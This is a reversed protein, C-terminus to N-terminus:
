IGLCVTTPKGSELLPLFPHICCQQSHPDWPMHRHNSLFGPSRCGHSYASMVNGLMKM